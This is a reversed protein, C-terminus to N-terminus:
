PGEAIEAVVVVRVVKAGPPLKARAKGAAYGVLFGCDDPDLDRGLLRAFARAEDSDARPVEHTKTITQISM